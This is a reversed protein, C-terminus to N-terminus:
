YYGIGTGKVLDYLSEWSNIADLRVHGYDSSHTSSLEPRLAPKGSEFVYEVNIQVIDQHIELGTQVFDRM